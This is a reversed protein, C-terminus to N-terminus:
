TYGTIIGVSMTISIANSLDITDSVGYLYSGGNYCAFVESIFLYPGSVIDWGVCIESGNWDFVNRGSPDCLNRNGIDFAVLAIEEGGYGGKRSDFVVM